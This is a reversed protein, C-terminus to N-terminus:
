HKGHWDKGGKPTRRDRGESTVVVEEDHGRIVVEYGCAAAIRAFTDLRPTSGRQITNTVFNQSLGMELSVQKASKGSHSVVHRLTDKADM